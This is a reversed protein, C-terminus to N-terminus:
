SNSSSREFDDCITLMADASADGFGLLDLDRTPRHPEEFWTTLLLAGKLVFKERFPSISLRYLLCELADRTLILDFAHGHERAHNLPRARVSAAVDRTKKAMQGRVATSVAWRLASWLHSM